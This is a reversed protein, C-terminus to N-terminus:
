IKNPKGPLLIGSLKLVNLAIGNNDLGMGKLSRRIDDLIQRRAYEVGDVFANEAIWNADQNNYIMEDFRKEPYRTDAYKIAAQNIEEKTM